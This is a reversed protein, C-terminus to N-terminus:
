DLGLARRAVAPRNTIVADVGWDALQRIRDPDDVTWVNVEIGADHARAVSAETVCPDWPNVARHGGGVAMAVADDPEETSLVLYGTALMPDASRVAELTGIDFSSVLVDLGPGVGGIALVTSRALAGTPDYGPEAPSNKIEVNVGMPLCTALALELTTVTDPLDGAITDFIVRGDPLVADHHVVLVGDATCRVDLEVWDAGQAAAGEFAELTNEPFDFSAGRHGIVMM